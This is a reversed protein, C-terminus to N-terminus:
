TPFSRSPTALSSSRMHAQLDATEFRVDPEFGAHRCLQEAFHRSAAGRPEMVWPSTGRCGRSDHHAASRRDLRRPPDRRDHPGAPRPRATRRRTRPTSSPSSSTSTACCPRWCRPRPSASSSSSGCTRTRGHAARPAPMLALMASQFVAIRVTGIDDEGRAHAPRVRGAGATSCIAPTSSSSRPRRPSSSGRGVKRLLPVGVEKELQSLQQSVSSPSHSAAEAVAAITGRVDLERLLRLTQRRADRCGISLRNYLIDTLFCRKIKRPHPAVSPPPLGRWGLLEGTVVGTRGSVAASQRASRASSVIAGHPAPQRLGRADRRADRRWRRAAHEPVRVAQLEGDPEDVADDTRLVGPRRACSRRRAPRAWTGARADARRRAGRRPRRAPRGPSTMGITRATSRPM